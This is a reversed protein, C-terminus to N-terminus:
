RYIRLPQRWPVGAEPPEPITPVPDTPPPVEAPPVDQGPGPLEPPLPQQPEIAM